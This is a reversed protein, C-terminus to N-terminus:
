MGVYLAVEPPYTRLWIEQNDVHVSKALHHALMNGKRSIHKWRVSNFADALILIDEIVKGLDNRPVDRHKLCNVVQLCDSEVEVRVLSCELAQSLAFLIGIAEAIPASWACDFRRAATFVVEGLRDRAAVGVQVAGSSRCAADTNLKLPEDVPPSWHQPSATRTEGHIPRMVSKFEERMSSVRQKWYLDPFQTQQHVFLNRRYWLIWLQCYILEFTECPVVRELEVMAEAPDM